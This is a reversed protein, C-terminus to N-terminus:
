EKSVFDEFVWGVVFAYFSQFLHSLSFFLFEQFSFSLFSTNLSFSFPSFNGKGRQTKGRFKPLLVNICLYNEGLIKRREKNKGIKLSDTGGRPSL